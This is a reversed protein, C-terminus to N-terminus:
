GGWVDHARRALAGYNRAARANAAAKVKAQYRFKHTMSESRADVGGHDFDGAGQDRDEACDASAAVHCDVALLDYTTSRWSGICAAAPLKEIGLCSKCSMYAIGGDHNRIHELHLTTSLTNSRMVLASAASRWPDISTKRSASPSRWATFADAITAALSASSARSAVIMCSGPPRKTITLDPRSSM